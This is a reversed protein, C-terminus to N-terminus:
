FWKKRNNKKAMASWIPAEEEGDKPIFLRTLMRSVLPLIIAMVAIFIVWYKLPIEQTIDVTEITNLLLM